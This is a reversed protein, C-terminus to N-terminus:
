GDRDAAFATDFQHLFRQQEASNKRIFEINVRLRNTASGDYCSVIASGYKGTVAFRSPTNYDGIVGSKMRPGLQEAFEDLSCTLTRSVRSPTFNNAASQEVWQADQLAISVM